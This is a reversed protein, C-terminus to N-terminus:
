HVEQGVEWGAPFPHTIRDRGGQLPVWGGQTRTGEGWAGGDGRVCVSLSHGHGGGPGPVVEMGVPMQHVGAAGWGLWSCYLRKGGMRLFCSFFCGFFVFGYLLDNFPFIRSRIQPRGRAEETSAPPWAQRPGRRKSLSRGLM